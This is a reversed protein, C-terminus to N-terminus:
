KFFFALVIQIKFNQTFDKKLVALVFIIFFYCKILIILEDCYNKGKARYTRNTKLYKEKRLKILLHKEPFPKEINQKKPAFGSVIHEM